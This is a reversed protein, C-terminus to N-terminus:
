ARRTRPRSFSALHEARRPSSGCLMCGFVLQVTVVLFIQAVAAVQAKVSAKRGLLMEFCYGYINSLGSVDYQKLLEAAEAETEAVVDSAQITRTAAGDQMGGQALAVQLMKDMKEIQQELKECQVRRAEAQQM